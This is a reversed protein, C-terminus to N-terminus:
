TDLARCDGLTFANVIFTVVLLMPEKFTMDFTEDRTVPFMATAFATETVLTMTVAAVVEARLAAVILVTDSM